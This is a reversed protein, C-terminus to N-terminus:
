TVKEVIDKPSHKPRGDSFNLARARIRLRECESRLLLALRDGEERELPDDTWELELHDASEEYALARALLRERTLRKLPV